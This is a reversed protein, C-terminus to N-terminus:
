PRAMLFGRAGGPPPSPAGRAARGPPPRQGVSQAAHEERAPGAPRPGGRGAGPPPFYTPRRGARPPAKTRPRLAASGRATGRPALRFAAGLGSGPKPATPEKTREANRGPEARRRARARAAAPNLPSEAAGRAPTARGSGRGGLSAPRHRASRGRRARTPGAPTGRM